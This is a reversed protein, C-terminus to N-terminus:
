VGAAGLDTDLKEDAPSSTPMVNRRTMMTVDASCESFLTDREGGVLVLCVHVTRARARVHLPCRM